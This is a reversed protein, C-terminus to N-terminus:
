GGKREKKGPTTEIKVKGNGKQWGWRKLLVGTLGCGQQTGVDGRCPGGRVAGRGAARVPGPLLEVRHPSSLLVAESSAECHPFTKPAARRILPPEEDIKILSRAAGRSSPAKRLLDFRLFLLPPSLPSSSSPPLLCLNPMARLEAPLGEQSGEWGSCRAPSLSHLLPHATRGSRLQTGYSCNQGSWVGVGVRSCCHPRARVM